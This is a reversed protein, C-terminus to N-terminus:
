FMTESVYRKQDLFIVLYNPFNKRLCDRSELFRFDNNPILSLIQNPPIPDMSDFYLFDAAFM